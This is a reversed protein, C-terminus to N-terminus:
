FDLSGTIMSDDAIEFKQGNPMLLVKQLEDDEMHSIDSNEPMISLYKQLNEHSSKLQWDENNDKINFVQSVDLNIDQDKWSQVCNQNEINALLYLLLRDFVDTKAEFGKM